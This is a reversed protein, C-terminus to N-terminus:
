KLRAVMIGTQYKSAKLMDVLPIDSVIVKKARSSAHILHLRSNLHFVIGVHSIELGKIKTTIAILDGNEIKDELASVNEEPIYFLDRKNISDETQRVRKVLSTDAKLAAYSDIHTSMFNIYKQYKVGGIEQTIDKLIGKKQNYFIWDTFYHLRSTYGAIKGKKYRIFELKNLFDKANFDQKGSIESLVVVNELFTTCDLERLNVRLNEEGETELTGGVYPTQLFMKAIAISRENIEQNYLSKSTVIDKISNFIAQDISDELQIKVTDQQKEAKGKCSCFAFLILLLYLCIKRM